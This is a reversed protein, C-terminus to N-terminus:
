HRNGTPGTKLVPGIPGFQDSKEFVMNRASIFWWSSLRGNLSMPLPVVFGRFLNEHRGYPKIYM